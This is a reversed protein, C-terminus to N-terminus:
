CAYKEVLDRLWALVRESPEWNIQAARDCQQSYFSGDGEGMDDSEIGADRLIKLCKCGAESRESSNLIGDRKFQTKSMKIGFEALKGAATREQAM